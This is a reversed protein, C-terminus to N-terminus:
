HCGGCTGCSGSCSTQPNIYGTLIQNVEALLIDLQTEANRMREMAKNAQITETLVKIRDDLSELLTENPEEKKVEADRLMHQVNYERMLGNITEDHLYAEKAERYETVAESNKLEEGFATLLEYLKETM